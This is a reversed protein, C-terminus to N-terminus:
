SHAAPVSAAVPSAPAAVWPRPVPKVEVEMRPRAEVALAPDTGMLAPDSLRDGRRAACAIAVALLGCLMWTSLGLTIWVLTPM